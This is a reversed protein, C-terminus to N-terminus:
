LWFPIQPLKAERLQQDLVRVEQTSYIQNHKNTNFDIIEQQWRQISQLKCEFTAYAYERFILGGKGIEGKTKSKYSFKCSFETHKQLTASLRNHINM